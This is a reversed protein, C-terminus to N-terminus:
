RRLLNLRLWFDYLQDVLQEIVVNVGLDGGYEVLSPTTRACGRSRASRIVAKRGFVYGIEHVGVAKTRAIIPKALASHQVLFFHCVAEANMLLRDIPPRFMPEDFCMEIIVVSPLEVLRWPRVRRRFM